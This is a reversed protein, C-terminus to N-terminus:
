RLIAWRHQHRVDRSDISGSLIGAILRPDTAPTPGLLHGHGSGDTFRPEDTWEKWFEPHVHLHKRLLETMRMRRVAREHETLASPRRPYFDMSIEIGYILFPGDEIPEVDYIRHVTNMVTKLREPDPDQIRLVFDRGIYRKSREPDQGSVFIGEAGGIQELEHDLKKWMNRAQHRGYTFFALEIWDVVASWRYDNLDIDPTLLLRGRHLPQKTAAPEVRYPLHLHEPDVGRHYAPNQFLLPATLYDTM